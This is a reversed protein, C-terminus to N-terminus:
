CGNQGATIVAGFSPSNVDLTRWGAPVSYSKDRDLFWDNTGSPPYCVIRYPPSGCDLDSNALRTCLQFASPPPATPVATPPIPTPTAPIPTATPVPTPAQTPATTPTSGSTPVATATSGPTTAPTTTSAASSPNAAPTGSAAASPGATASGRPASGIAIVTGPRPTGTATPLPAAADSGDGRTLFVAGALVGIILVAAVAVMGLVRTSSTAPGGALSDRELLVGSVRRPRYPEDYGTPEYDNILPAGSYGNDADDELGYGAPVQPAWGEDEEEEDFGGAAAVPMNPLAPPTAPRIPAGAPRTPRFPNTSARDGGRQPASRGGRPGSVFSDPGTIPTSSTAALRELLPTADLNLFNAYSRLFGRVYVPAPLEDFAEAELAELFRPSIRTEQAVQEITLGRQVRGNRLTIGIDAM